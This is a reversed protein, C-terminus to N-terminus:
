LCIEEIKYGAKLYELHILGEIEKVKAESVSDMLIDGDKMETFEADGIIDSMKLTLERIKSTILKKKKTDTFNVITGMIYIRRGNGNETIAFKGCGIETVSRGYIKSVM